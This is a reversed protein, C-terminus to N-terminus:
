KRFGQLLRAAEAAVAPLRRTDASARAGETFVVLVFRPGGPLAIIAADHRAQSMWGAKSWLRSGAPLGEGLFGKV